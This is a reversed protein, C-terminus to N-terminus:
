GQGHVEAACAAMSYSFLKVNCESCFKRRAVAAIDLRQPCRCRTKPSAQGHRRRERVAPSPTVLEGGGEARAAGACQLRRWPRQNCDSLAKTGDVVLSSQGTQMRLPPRWCCVPPPAGWLSAACGLAHSAFIEMIAAVEASSACNSGASLVQWCLMPKSAM